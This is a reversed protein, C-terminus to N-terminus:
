NRSALVKDQTANRLAAIVCPELRGEAILVDRHLGDVVDTLLRYDTLQAQNFAREVVIAGTANKLTVLCEGHAGSPTLKVQYPSLAEGLLLSISEM